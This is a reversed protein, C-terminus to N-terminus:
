EQEGLDDLAQQYGRMYNEEAVLWLLEPFELAFVEVVMEPTVLNDDFNFKNGTYEVLWRKLETNLDVSAGKCPNEFDSESLM